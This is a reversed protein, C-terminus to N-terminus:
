SALLRALWDGRRFFDLFPRTDCTDCLFINAEPTLNKALSIIAHATRDTPVLSVFKFVEKESAFAKISENQTEEDGDTILMIPM